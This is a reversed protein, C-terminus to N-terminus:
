KSLFYSSSSNTKKKVALTQFLYFFHVSRSCFTLTLSLTKFGVPSSLLQPDVPSPARNKGRGFGGGDWRRLLSASYAVAINNRIHVIYIYALFSPPPYM